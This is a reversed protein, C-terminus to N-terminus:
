PCPSAALTAGTTTPPTSSAHIDSTSADANLVPPVHDWADNEAFIGSAYVALDYKTNCSLTNLGASSLAGGGLDGGPSDFEAGYVNLTIVNSEIKASCGPSVTSLMYLGTGNATVVNGTVAANTTDRMYLGVFTNGTLTCNRVTINTTSQVTVIGAASASGADAPPPTATIVLGALTSGTPAVLPTWLGGYSAGGGHILVQASAANGKNAEDGILAVGSPLTLPFTEGNATDYSGASARITKICANGTATAVAKGITKYPLPSTGANSDLGNVADVFVQAVRCGGDSADGGSAEPADAANAADTADAADAASSADAAGGGDGTGSDSGSDTASDPGASTSADPSADQQGSADSEGADSGPGVGTADGGDDGGADVSASSPASSSSCGPQIGAVALALPVFIRVRLAM